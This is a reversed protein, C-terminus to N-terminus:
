KQAFTVLNQLEASAYSHGIASYPRKEGRKEWKERDKMM